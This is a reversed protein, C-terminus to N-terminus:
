LNYEAKATIVFNCVGFNEVTGVDAQINLGYVLDSLFQDSGIALRVDSVAKLITGLPDAENSTYIWLDMSLPLDFTGRPTMQTRSLNFEGFSIFPYKPADDLVVFTKSVSKATFKNNYPTVGTIGILDTYIRDYFQYEINEQM